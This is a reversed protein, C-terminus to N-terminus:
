TKLQRRLATLSVSNTVDGHLENWQKAAAVPFSFLSVNQCAFTDNSREVGRSSQRDMSTRSLRPRAWVNDLMVASAMCAHKSAFTAPTREDVM